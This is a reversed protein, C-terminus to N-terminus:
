IHPRKGYLLCCLLITVFNHPAGFNRNAVFKGSGNKRKCGHPCEKVRVGQKGHLDLEEFCKPCLKSTNYEDILIVTFFRALYNKLWTYNGTMLASNGGRFKGTGFLIVPAKDGDPNFHDNMALILNVVDDWFRQKNREKKFHLKRNEISNTEELIKKDMGDEKFVDLHKEYMERDLTRGHNEALKLNHDGFKSEYAATQEKVYEDLGANQWYSGKAVLRKM